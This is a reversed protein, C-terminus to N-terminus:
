QYNKTTRSSNQAKRLGSGPFSKNKKRTEMKQPTKKKQSHAKEHNKKKVTRKPKKRVTKKRPKPPQKVTKKPPTVPPPTYAPPGPNSPPNYLSVTIVKPRKSKFLDVAFGWILILTILSVHVILVTRFIKKRTQSSVLDSKDDKKYINATM